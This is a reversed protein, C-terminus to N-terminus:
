ARALAVRMNKAIEIAINFARKIVGKVEATIVRNRIKTKASIRIGRKCVIWGSTIGCSAVDDKKTITRDKPSRTALRNDGKTGRFSFENIKYRGAKGGVLECFDEALQAEAM